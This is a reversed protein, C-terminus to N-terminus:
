FVAPLDRAQTSGPVSCCCSVCVCVYVGGVCVRVYGGERGRGLKAEHVERLCVCWLLVRGGHLLLDGGEKRSKLLGRGGDVGAQLEESGHFGVYLVLADGLGALGVGEFADANGGAGGGRSGEDSRAERGQAM